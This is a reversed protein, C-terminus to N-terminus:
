VVQTSKQQLYAKTDLDHGLHLKAVAAKLHEPALHAYKM